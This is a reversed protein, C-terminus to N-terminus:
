MCSGNISFFNGNHRFVAPAANLRGLLPVILSCLIAFGRYQDLSVLREKVAPPVASTTSQIPSSNTKVMTMSICVDPQSNASLLPTTDDVFM